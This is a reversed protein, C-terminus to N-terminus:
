TFTEVTRMLRMGTRWYWGEAGHFLVSAKFYSGEATDQLPFLHANLVGSIVALLSLTPISKVPLKDSLMVADNNLSWVELGPKM